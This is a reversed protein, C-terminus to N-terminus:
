PVIAIKDVDFVSKAGTKKFEEIALPMTIDNGLVLDLNANVIEGAEVYNKGCHKALIKQAATQAKEM